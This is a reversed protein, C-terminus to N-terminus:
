LYPLQPRSILLSKGLACLSYTAFASCPHDSHPLVPPMRVTPKFLLCHPGPPNHRVTHLRPHNQPLSQAQRAQQGSLAETFGSGAEPCLPTLSPPPRARILSSCPVGSLAALLQPDSSPRLLAPVRLTGSLAGLHSAGQGLHQGKWARPGQAFGGFEWCRGRVRGRELYFLTLGCGPPLNETVHLCFSHGRAGSPLHTAPRTLKFDKMQQGLAVILIVQLM